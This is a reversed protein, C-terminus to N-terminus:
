HAQSSPIPPTAQPIQVNDDSTERFNNKVIIYCTYFGIIGM